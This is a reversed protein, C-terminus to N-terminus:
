TKLLVIIHWAFRFLFLTFVGPMQGETLFINQLPELFSKAFQMVMNNEAQQKHTARVKSQVKSQV